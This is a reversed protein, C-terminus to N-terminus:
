LQILGIQQQQQTPFSVRIARPRWTPSYLLKTLLRALQSLSHTLFLSIFHVEEERHAWSWVCFEETFKEEEFGAGESTRGRNTQLKRTKNKRGLTSSARQQRTAPCFREKVTLYRLADHLHLLVTNTSFEQNSWIRQSTAYELKRASVRPLASWILVFSFASIGSGSKEREKWPSKRKGSVGHLERERRRMTDHKTGGAWAFHPPPSRTAVGVWWKHRRRQPTAPQQSRLATRDKSVHRICIHGQVM